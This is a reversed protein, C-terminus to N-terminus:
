GVRCTASRVQEGNYLYGAFHYYIYPIGGYYVDSVGAFIQDLKWIPCRM